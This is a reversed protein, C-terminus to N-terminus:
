AALPFIKTRRVSMFGVGVFGLMMLLWTSPEPVAPATGVVTVESNLVYRTPDNGGPCSFGVCEWSLGGIGGLLTNNGLGLTGAFTLQLVDDTTPQGVPVYEQFTVVTNTPNNISASPVQGSAYTNGTLTGPTTTLNYPAGFPPGAINGYVDLSFTGNLFTGDSLEVNNLTFVIDAHASGAFTALSGVALTAALLISRFNM